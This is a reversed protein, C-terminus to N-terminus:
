EDKVVVLKLGLADLIKVATSTLLSKNGTLANSIASRSVGLREALEKQPIENQAMHGKIARKLERNADVGSYIM